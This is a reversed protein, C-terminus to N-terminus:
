LVVYERGLPAAVGLHDTDGRHFSRANLVQQFRNLQRRFQVVIPGRLLDSRVANAQFGETVLPTTRQCPHDNAAAHKANAVVQQAARGVAADPRHVVLTVLLQGIGRRGCRDLDGSQAVYWAGPSWKKTM